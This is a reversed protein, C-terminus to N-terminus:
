FILSYILSKRAAILEDTNQQNTFQIATGGIGTSTTAYIKTENTGANPPTTLAGLTLASNVVVEADQTVLYLNTATYFPQISSGAISVGALQVNDAGINLTLYDDIFMAIQGANELGDDVINIYSSTTHNTLRHAVEATEVQTNAYVYDVYAKNPIDDEDVVNLRYNLTGKVSLVANANDQGLFNLRPNTSVGPATFDDASNAGTTDLRIAGVYLASPMGANRVGWSGPYPNNTGGARWNITDNYFLTAANQYILGNSGTGRDIVLGGVNGYNPLDNTIMGNGPENNNLTIIQDQIVVNTSSVTENIGQVLLDGTIIVKGGRNNTIGGSTDLTITGSSATKIQYDGSLKVVDVTM